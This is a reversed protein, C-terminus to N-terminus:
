YNFSHANQQYRHMGFLLIAQYKLIVKNLDV